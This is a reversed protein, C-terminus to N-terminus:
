GQQTEISQLTAAGRGLTFNETPAFGKQEFHGFRTKAVFFRADCM